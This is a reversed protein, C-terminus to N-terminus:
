AEYRAWEAAIRRGQYRALTMVSLMPNIGCSEPFVSSDCVILNRVHHSEGRANVVSSAPSSGMKVTAQCHASSITTHHPEFCLHEIASSESPSRFRPSPLSGIPEQSALLVERAGAAFMIDVGTRAALRLRSKDSESLRYTIRRRGSPRHWLVRNAPAPTDILMVGFGALRDYRRMLDFHETGIGPIVVAGYAPHGFLCEYYFGHTPYFHDSYITGTIGRYNTLPSPMVGIIPLGPHLILGRGIQDYPDPHGSRQLLVPSEIAGCCVLVLRANVDLVGPAVSNSESGRKTARVRARAGSVVLAKARREFTLTEVDCHHILRVGRALADPVYTVLTSQKRDYACGEACFGCGICGRMNLPFRKAAMGLARLGRELVRNNDNIEDDSPTHVNIRTRVEALCAAMNLGAVGYDTSAPDFSFGRLERAHRWRAWVDPIPDLALAYNITTGGGVCEGGRVAIAGDVTSRAGREAYLVNADWERQNFFTRTYYGGKELLVISRGPVRESLTAALVGGAAGSGIVLIDCTISTM